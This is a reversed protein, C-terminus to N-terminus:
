LSYNGLFEELINYLLQHNNKIYKKSLKKIIEKTQIYNEAVLEHKCNKIINKISKANSELHFQLALVNNKFSFAQNSCAKSKILHQTDLPLNFTDGHWHFVHFDNPLHKFYPINDNSTKNIPYWGIEKHPNTSVKAGMVDAIIQAGLCIGLVKKGANIAKKIFEKELKLWPYKEEDYIGMPGGMIILCDIAKLSPMCYHPNFFRTKTIRFKKKKLWPEISALDEFEVHQFYHVNM